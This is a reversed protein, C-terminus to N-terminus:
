TYAAVASEEIHRALKEDSEALRLSIEKDFDVNAEDAFAKHTDSPRRSETGLASRGAFDLCFAAAADTNLAMREQAVVAIRSPGVIRLLKDFHTHYFLRGEAFRDFYEEITCNAYFDRERWAFHEPMRGDTAIRKHMNHWSVLAKRQDRVCLVFRRDPNSEALYHLANSNYIYATFKHVGVPKSQSLHRDREIKRIAPWTLELGGSANKILEVEEWEQLKRVLASTECKPFGVVVLSASM